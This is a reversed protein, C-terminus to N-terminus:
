KKTEVIELPGDLDRKDTPTALDSKSSPPALAGTGKPVAAGFWPSPRRHVLRGAWSRQVIICGPPNQALLKGRAQSDLLARM